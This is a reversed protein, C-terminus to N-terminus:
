SSRERVFVYAHIFDSLDWLYAVLTDGEVAGDAWPWHDVFFTLGTPRRPAFGGTVEGEDVVAGDSTRVRLVYRFTRDSALIFTGGVVVRTYNSIMDTFPLSAGDITSLEYRGTPAPVTTARFEVSGVRDVSAVLTNVGFSPGLTWRGSTARGQPGSIATAHFVSGGGSTVMFKVEIGAIPKGNEDRVLVEPDETAFDGPFGAFGQQDVM